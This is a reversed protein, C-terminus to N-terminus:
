IRIHPNSSEVTPVVTGGAVRVSVIRTEKAEDKEVEVPEM